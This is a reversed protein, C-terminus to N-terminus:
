IGMQALADFIRALSTALTSHETEFNEALERLRDRIAAPPHGQSADLWPKIDALVRQLSERTEDDIDDASSLATHLEDLQQKLDMVTQLYRM